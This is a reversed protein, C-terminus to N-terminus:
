RSAQKGTRQSNEEKERM